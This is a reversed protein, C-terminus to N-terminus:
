SKPSKKQNRAGYKVPQRRAGPTSDGRERSTLADDAPVAQVPFKSEPPNQWEAGPRTCDLGLLVAFEHVFGIVHENSRAELVIAEMQRLFREPLGGYHQLSVGPAEDVMAGSAIIRLRGRWSSPTEDNLHALIVTEADDTELGSAIEHLAEPTPRNKGTYYGALTSLPMGLRGAFDQRTTGAEKMRELVSNLAVTFHSM